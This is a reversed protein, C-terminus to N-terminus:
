ELDQDLMTVVGQPTALIGLKALTQARKDEDYLSRRAEIENITDRRIQDRIETPIVGEPLSGDIM